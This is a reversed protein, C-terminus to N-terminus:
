EQHLLLGIFTMGSCNPLMGREMNQAGERSWGLCQRHHELVLGSSALDFKSGLLRLSVDTPFRINECVASAFPAGWSECFKFELIHM